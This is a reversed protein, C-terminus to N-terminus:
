HRIPIDFVESITENEVSMLGSEVNTLVVSIVEKFHEDTEDISVCQISNLFSLTRVPVVSSVLPSSEPVAPRESFSKKVASNGDIPPATLDFSPCSEVRESHLKSDEGSTGLTTEFWRWENRTYNRIKEVRESHLKECWRTDEYGNEPPSTLECDEFDEYYDEESTELPSCYGNYRPSVHQSLQM